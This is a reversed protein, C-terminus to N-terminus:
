QSVNCIAGYRPKDVSEDLPTNSDIGLLICAILMLICGVTVIMNIFPASDKILSHTHTHTHTHTYTHTHTHARTCEHTHTNTHTHTPLTHMYVYTYSSFSSPLPFVFSPLPPCKSWVVKFFTLCLLDYNDVYRYLTFM